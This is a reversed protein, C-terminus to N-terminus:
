LLHEYKEKTSVLKDNLRKLNMAVEVMEKRLESRKAMASERKFQGQLSEYLTDM